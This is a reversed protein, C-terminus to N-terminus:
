AGSTMSGRSYLRALLERAPGVSGGARAVLALGAVVLVASLLTLGLVRPWASILGGYGLLGPLAGLLLAGCPIGFALGPRSPLVHHMAKLTVPMTMQFVLMGVLAFTADNVLLSILPASVLLALASSTGWGVRDAVFGGVMKGGCAAVALGIMVPESVGRWAGAVTGGGLSRVFVSALLFVAAIAVVALTGGRVRPLTVEGSRRRAALWLLPIGAALLGVIVFRAPVGHLGLWIGACVGLAGPGVFVGSETARTGSERLVFAGAGVHFLANGVGVVIVGPLTAGAALPLAVTVLVAGVVAMGRYCRWRDAILGALFQGGFALCNYLVVLALIGVADGGRRSVDTFIVYLAAADVLMHVIGLMLADTTVRTWASAPAAAM